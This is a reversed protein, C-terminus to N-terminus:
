APVNSRRTPPTAQQKLLRAAEQREREQQDLLDKWSHDTNMHKLAEARKSHTLAGAVILLGITLGQAWMRAQVVKQATSQIKDRSIIAGALALSSAWGGLIISYQHRDAWDGLKEKTTMQEWRAKDAAIKEDLLRLGEGEWRGRDFELSRREAQVTIAPAVVIVVGLAKLSLPLNRYATFTRQLYYSGGLALIGSAVAGELAGKRVAGNHQTLE